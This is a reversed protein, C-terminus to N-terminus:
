ASGLMKKPIEVEIKQMRTGKAFSPQMGFKLNIFSGNGGMQLKVNVIHFFNSKTM